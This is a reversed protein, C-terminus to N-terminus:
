LAAVLDAFTRIASAPETLLASLSPSPRSIRSLRGPSGQAATTDPPSITQRALIDCNAAIFAATADGGFPHFSLYSSGTGINNGHGTALRFFGGRLEFRNTHRTGRLAWTTSSTSRTPASASAAGSTRPTRSGSYRTTFGPRHSRW